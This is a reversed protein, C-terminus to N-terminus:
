AAYAVLDTDGYDRMWRHKGNARLTESQKGAGNRRYSRRKANQSRRFHTKKEPVDALKHSTICLTSSRFVADPGSYSRYAKNDRVDPPEAEPFSNALQQIHVHSVTGQPCRVSQERM